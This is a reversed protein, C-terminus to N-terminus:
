SNDDNSNISYSTNSNISYSNNCNISYSDNSNISYSNNSNISYSFWPSLPLPIRCRRRRFQIAIYYITIISYLLVCLSLCSLLLLLTVAGTALTPGTRATHAAVLEVAFVATCRAYSIDYYLM